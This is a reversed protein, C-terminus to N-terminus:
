IFNMLSMQMIMSSSKLVMNYALQQQALKTMLVTVDVDEIKSLTDTEDLERMTVNEFVVALRDQRGGVETAKTTVVKMCATLEDLAQQMGQQSGTEAYMIARGITEFVNRGDGGYVPQASSTFPEQFLGGFIDKGVLNVTISSNPSIEINIDARRPHVNFQAGNALAGTTNLFGGPIPFSTSGAAVTAQTWSSGDDLSYSYKMPPGTADDIRVAVDRSFYGDATATAATGYSQVLPSGNDDGLYVASPRVYLWTGNNTENVNSTDVATVTRGAPLTVQTGGAQVLTGGGTTTGTLWTDGGDQSYRFTMEGGGTTGDQTFQILTTYNAGGTVVYEAGAFNADNITAHLTEAYAAQDTKHGGFIKQGAYPTNALGILSSLAQRLSFSAQQRNESTQTGTSAEEVIDRVQSLVKQVDLLTSDATSLWGTATGINKKYQDINDLTARQMLVRAAGAPDDSPRNIRKESAGQLNSEMLASLNQNMQSVFNSYMQRQSIRISM